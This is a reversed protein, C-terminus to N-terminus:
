PCHCYFIIHHLPAAINHQDYKGPKPSYNSQVTKQQAAGFFTSLLCVNISNMM